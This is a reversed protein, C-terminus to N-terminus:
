PAPRGRRRLLYAAGIAVVVLGVIIPILVDGTSASGVTAPTASPASSASPTPESSPTASASPVPTPTPSSTPEPTPPAAAVTFFITGRELDGDEGVSVWKVEYGDPGLPTELNITMKAGPRDVVASAIEGGGTDLLDAKSGEALVASFTLVIPGAFPGAVTAGDAPSATELEAHAAVSTVSVMALLLGLVFAAIQRVARNSCTM